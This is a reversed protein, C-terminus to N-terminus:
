VSLLGSLSSNKFVNQTFTNEEKEMNNEVWDFVSFIMDADNM